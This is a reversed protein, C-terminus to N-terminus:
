AEGHFRAVAGRGAIESRAYRAPMRASQWRGAVQVAAVSAGAAVLDVAMGVRPSHGTYAGELRAARAAAAIRRSVTRGSKIGFVRSDPDAGMDKVARLDRTAQKGVYLVAGAADQDAKSRRVTVRASGDARFAVDRWRLAAAEGRRLMCDRMVACLAVDVLGRRFARSRSETRGTPGAQRRQATARIAALAPATLPAAQRAGNATRAHERVLGRMVQGVGAHGAPNAAGAARHRHRIAARDLRLSAPSLGAAARHAVYAAVTEPAAPMANLGEAATWSEFRVWAQSYVRRTAPSHAARAAAEIRDIHVAALAPAAAPQRTPHAPM